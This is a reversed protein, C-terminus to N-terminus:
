HWSEVSYGSLGLYSFSFAATMRAWHYGPNTSVYPAVNCNAWELRPPRSMYEEAVRSLRRDWIDYTAADGREAALLLLPWGAMLIDFGGPHGIESVYVHRGDTGAPAAVYPRGEAPRGCETAWAGHQDMSYGIGGGRSLDVLLTGDPAHLTREASERLVQWEADSPALSPWPGGAAALSLGVFHWAAGMYPISPVDPAHNEVWLENQGYPGGATEANLTRVLQDRLEDPRDFVLSYDIYHSGARHLDPGDPLREGLVRAALM